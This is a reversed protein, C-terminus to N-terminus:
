QKSDSKYKKLISNVKRKGNKKLGLNIMVDDLRANALETEEDGYSGVKNDPSGYIELSQLLYNSKDKLGQFDLTKLKDMIKNIDKERTAEVKQFVRKFTELEKDYYIKNPDQTSIENIFKDIQMPYKLKEFETMVDENGYGKINLNGKELFDRENSKLHSDSKKKAKALKEAYKALQKIDKDESHKLYKGEVSAIVTNGQQVALSLIDYGLREIYAKHSNRVQELSANKSLKGFNYDGGYKNFERILKDRNSNTVKASEM